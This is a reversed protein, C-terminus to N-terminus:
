GRLLLQRQRVQSRPGLLCRARCVRRPSSTVAVHKPHTRTETETKGLTVQWCAPFQRHPSPRTSDLRTSNSTTSKDVQPTIRSLPLLCTATAAVSQSISQRLVPLLSVQNLVFTTVNVLTVLTHPQRTDALPSSPLTLRIACVVPLCDILDSVPRPAFFASPRLLANM